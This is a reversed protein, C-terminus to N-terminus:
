LFLVRLCVPFSKWMEQEEGVNLIKQQQKNPKQKQKKSDPNRQTAQSVRYVLIAELESIRRGRAGV